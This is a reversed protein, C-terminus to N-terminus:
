RVVHTKVNLRKLLNMEPQFPNLIVGYHPANYGYYLTVPPHPTPVYGPQPAFTNDYDVEEGAPALPQQDYSQATGYGTQPPPSQYGQQQPPYYGVNGNSTYQPGQQYSQGNNNYGSM